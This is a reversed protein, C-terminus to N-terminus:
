TLSRMKSCVLEKTVGERDAGEDFGADTPCTRKSELVSDLHLDRQTHPPARMPLESCRDMQADRRRYM